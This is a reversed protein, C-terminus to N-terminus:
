RKDQPITYEVLVEGDMQDNISLIISGIQDAIEFPLHMWAEVRFSYDYRLIRTEQGPELDRNDSVGEFTIRTPIGNVNMWSEGTAFRSFILWTINDLTIQHNAILTVNYTLSWPMPKRYIYWTDDIRRRNFEIFPPLWREQDFEAGTLTFTFMPLDPSGGVTPSFYKAVARDPTSYLVPLKRGRKEPVPEEFDSLWQAFAMNVEAFWPIATTNWDRSWYRKGLKDIPEQTM